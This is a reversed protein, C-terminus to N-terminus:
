TGAALLQSVTVLEFGRSRLVSLVKDLAEITGPKPPGGDHFLVISGPRVNDLVNSSLAAADQTETDHAEVDWTITKRGMERMVYPLVLLKKAYPPRFLLDGTFGAGRLLRDTHEIEERVFGPSVFVMRRHSYSHNAGEHGDAAVSAAIDQHRALNEGTMFFTARAGHRRLVALIPPTNTVNPGDDFTIAVLPRSTDARAHIGGFVQFTKSRSLQLGAVAIALAIVM